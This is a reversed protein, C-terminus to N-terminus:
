IARGDIIRRRSFLYPTPRSDLEENFTYSNRPIWASAKGPDSPQDPSCILRLGPRRAELFYDAVDERRVSLTSFQDTMQHIIDGWAESHTQRSFDLILIRLDLGAEPRPKGRSVLWLQSLNVSGPNIILHAHELQDSLFAETVLFLVSDTVQCQPITKSPDSLLGDGLIASGNM